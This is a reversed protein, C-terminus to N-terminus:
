GINKILDMVQEIPSRPDNKMWTRFPYPDNKEV